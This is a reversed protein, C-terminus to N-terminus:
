LAKPQRNLSAIIVTRFLSRLAQRRLAARRKKEPVHVSSDRVSSEFDDVAAAAFLISNL